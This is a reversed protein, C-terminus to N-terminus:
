APFDEEVVFFGNPMHAEDMQPPIPYRSGTKHTSALGDLIKGTQEAPFAFIIETDQTAAFRRDGVCPIELTPKGTKVIQAMGRSCLGADGSSAMKFEGGSTWLDAQILRMMQASNGYIVVGDPTLGAPVKTLPYTVVAQYKKDIKPLYDQMSKATAADHQYIGCNIEGNSVREPCDIMGLCAAGLVCIQDEACSAQAWGYFRALATQQCINMKHGVWKVSDPVDEKKELLTFGIPFNNLHLYKHFDEYAAKWDM